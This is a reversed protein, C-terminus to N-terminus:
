ECAVAVTGRSRGAEDALIKDIKPKGPRAVESVFQVDDLEQESIELRPEFEGGERRPDPQDGFLRHLSEGGAGPSPSAGRAIDGMSAVSLRFEDTSKFAPSQAPYIGQGSQTSWRKQNAAPDSPSLFTDDTRYQDAASVAFRPDFSTPPHPPRAVLPSFAGQPLSSDRSPTNLGKPPDSLRRDNSTMSGQQGQRSKAELDAKAASAAAARRSKARRIRGEKQLKKSIKHEGPARTDDEGDFNTYDLIHGEHGLEGALYPDSVLGTSDQPQQLYTLDVTSNGISGGSHISDVSSASSSRPRKMFQASPPTLDDRGPVFNTDSLMSHRNAKSEMPNTVFIDVQLQSAPVM